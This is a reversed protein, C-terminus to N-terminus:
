ITGQPNPIEGDRVIQAIVHGKRAVLINRKLKIAVAQAEELNHLDKERLLLGFLEDYAKFYCQLTFEDSLRVNQPIKFYFKSFCSNFESVSENEEKLM